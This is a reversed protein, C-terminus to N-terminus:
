YLCLLCSVTFQFTRINSQCKFAYQGHSLSAYIAVNSDNYHKSQVM